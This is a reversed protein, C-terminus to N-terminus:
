KTATCDNFFQGNFSVICSMKFADGRTLQKLVNESANTFSAILAKKGVFVTANYSGIGRVVSYFAVPLTVLKDKYKEDAALANSQYDSQIKAYTTVLVPAAQVAASWTILAGLIAAYAIKM